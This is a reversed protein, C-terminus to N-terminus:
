NAYKMMLKGENNVANAQGMAHPCLLDFDWYTVRNFINHTTM